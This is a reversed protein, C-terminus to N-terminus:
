FRFFIQDQFIRLYNLIIETDNILIEPIFYRENIM